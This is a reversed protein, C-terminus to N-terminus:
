ERTGFQRDDLEALLQSIRQSDAPSVPPLHERLFHVSADKAAVLDWIARYAKAADDGALSDWLLDMQRSASGHRISPQSPSRQAWSPHAIAVVLCSVISARQM